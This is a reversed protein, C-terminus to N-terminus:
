EMMKGILGQNKGVAEATAMMEQQQQAQAQAEERAQRKQEVVEIPVLANLPAGYSRMSERAIFDFDWNDAMDPNIQLMPMSREITAFMSDASISRAALSLKGLFAVDYSAEPAPPLLGTRILINLGINIIPLLYEQELRSIPQGILRQAEKVREISETASSINRKDTLAKFKDIHFFEQIRQRQNQLVEYTLVPNAGTQLPKPEFGGIGANYILLAGPSVDPQGLLSGDPVLLPPNAFKEASMLYTECMRDLMKIDPLHETGASRGHMETSSLKYRTIVYRQNQYGSEKVITSDKCYVWVSAYPMNKNDLKDVSRDKRPYVAHIFEHKTNSDTDYDKMMSDPVMGFEMFAQRATMMTKVYVSDIRRKNDEEFVVDAIHKGSFTLGEGDFDVFVCSTGLAILQELMTQTELGINSDNLSNHILETALQSWAQAEEKDSNLQIQFFKQGPPMLYSYYGSSAEEVAQIGTTDFLSTGKAEGGVTKKTIDSNYPLIYNAVNQWLSEFNTREASSKLAQYKKKITEADM